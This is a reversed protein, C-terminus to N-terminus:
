IHRNAVALAQVVHEDPKELIAETQKGIGKKAIEAARILKDAADEHLIRGGSARAVRGGDAQGSSRPSFNQEMRDVLMGGASIMANMAPESLEDGMSASAMGYLSNLNSKFERSKMKNGGIQAMNLLNMYISAAQPNSKLFNFFNQRVNPPPLAEAIDRGLHRGVVSAGALTAITKAPIGSFMASEALAAATSGLTLNQGSESTAKQAYQDLTKGAFNSFRYMDDMYDRFPSSKSNGFIIDMAKKSTGDYVSSYNRFSFKPLINYGVWAKSFEDWARPDVVNKVKQLFDTNAKKDQSMRALNNYIASVSKNDYSAGSGLIKSLQEQVSYINKHAINDANALALRASSGGIADAAQLMDKTLSNRIERLIEENVGAQPSIRNFNINDSVMKRLNKIESITLGKKYANSIAINVNESFLPDVKAINGLENEKAIRLMFLNRPYHRSADSLISNVPQYISNLEKQSGSRIWNSFSDKIAQGATEATATEAYDAFKGAAQNLTSASANPVNKGIDLKSISKGIMGADVVAPISINHKAAIDAAIKGTSPNGTIYKTLFNGVNGVVSGAASLVPPIVKEGVKASAAGIAAGKLKEEPTDEESSGYIAGQIIPKELFSGAGRILPIGSTVRSALTAINPAASIVRAPVSVPASALTSAITPAVFAARYTWPNKQYAAEQRIRQNQLEDEYDKDGFFSKAKAIAQPAYGLAFGQLAGRGLSELNGVEEGQAAIERLKKDSLSSLDEQSQNPAVSSLSEGAALRKVQDDSLSKFDVM